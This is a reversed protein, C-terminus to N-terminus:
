RGVWGDRELIVLKEGRAMRVLGRWGLGGRVFRRLVDGDVVWGEFGEVGGVRRWGDARLRLLLQASPEAILHTLSPNHTLTTPSLHETKNYTWTQSQTHIHTHTSTTLPAPLFSPHPPAHTHLFLSAGTQAALNSIHVHVIYIFRMNTLPEIDVTSCPVVVFSPDYMGNEHTAYMDNFQALASGGPYNAMSSLLLLYTASCNLALCGMVVM